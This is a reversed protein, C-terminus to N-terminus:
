KGALNKFAGKGKILVIFKKILVAIGFIAISCFVVTAGTTTNIQPLYSVWLGVQGSVVSVLLAIWFMGRGTKALVRGVAAPAVLLATVLLVGVAQVSIVVVLSLFAGFLYDALASTRYNAPAVCSLMLKNYLFLFFLISLLTLLLLLVIGRDDLTLVDGLFYRNVSGQAQPYRSTLALGLAVGGSFVLGIITDSSLTSHRLLYIILLGILVGFILVVIDVPLSLILGIALGAFITHGAADPFFAMRRSVVLVGTGSACFSLLFLATAARQMFAPEYLFGFVSYISAM